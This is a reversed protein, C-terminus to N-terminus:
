EFDHVNPARRVAPREIADDVKCLSCSCPRCHTSVLVGLWRKDDLPADSLQGRWWLRAVRM